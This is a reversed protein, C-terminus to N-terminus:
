FRFLRLRRKRSASSRVGSYESPNRMGYYAVLARCPVTKGGRHRRMRSTPPCIERRCRRQRRRRRRASRWRARRRGGAASRRPAGTRSGRSSPNTTARRRTGGGGRRGAGRRARSRAAAARQRGWGRGPRLRDSACRACAERASERVGGAIERVDGAIKKSRGCMERPRSADTVRAPVHAPARSTERVSASRRMGSPEMRLTRTWEM